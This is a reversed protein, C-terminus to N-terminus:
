RPLRGSAPRRLPDNISSKIFRVSGDAMTANFGGPHKSGMGLTPDQSALSLDEPKSWPVPTAAEVVTFTNPTGDTVSAFAVGSPKGTFMSSPDVVVEYTTLGKPMVESPCRYATPVQASLPKNHPSDWAEDLHFRQFLSDQDMYPLILVRWSLLLPM